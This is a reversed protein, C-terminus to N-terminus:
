ALTLGCVCFIEGNTGKNREPATTASDVDTIRPEAIVQDLTM